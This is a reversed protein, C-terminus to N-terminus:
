AEAARCVPTALSAQRIAPPSNVWAEFLELRREPRDFTALIEARREASLHHAIRATRAREARVYENFAGLAEGQTEELQRYAAELRAEKEKRIALEHTQHANQARHKKEAERERSLRAM